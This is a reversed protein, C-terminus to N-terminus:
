YLTIRQIEMPGSSWAESVSIVVRRMRRAAREGTDFHGSQDMTGSAFWIPSLPGEASADIDIVVTKPSAGPTAEIRVGRLEQLSGDAVALVIRGTGRFAFSAGDILVNEPNAELTAPELESSQVLVDFGAQQPALVPQAESLLVDGRTDIYRRINMAVEEIRMFGHSGEVPETLVMGVPRGDVTLFSGSRGPFSSEPGTFAAEFSKHDPVETIRMPAAEITGDTQVYLLEAARQATTRSWGRSFDDLTTRCATGAESRVVGIALDIGDWFPATAVGSGKLPPQGPLTVAFNGGDGLVHAVTM